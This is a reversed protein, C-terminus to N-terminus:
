SPQLTCYARRTLLLLISPKIVSLFHFIVAGTQSSERIDKSILKWSKFMLKSRKDQIMSLKDRDSEKGASKVCLLTHACLNRHYTACCACESVTKHKQIVLFSIRLWTPLECWPRQTSNRELDSVATSCIRAAWVNMWNTSEVSILGWNSSSMTGVCKAGVTPWSHCLCCFQWKFHDELAKLFALSHGASFLESASAARMFRAAGSDNWTSSRQNFVPFIYVWM